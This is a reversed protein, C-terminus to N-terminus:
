GSGMRRATNGSVTEDVRGGRFDKRGKQDQKELTGELLPVYNECEKVGGHEEQELDQGDM